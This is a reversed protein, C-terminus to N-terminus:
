KTCQVAKILRREGDSKIGIEFFYDNGIKLNDRRLIRPEGIVEVEPNDISRLKRENINFRDLVYVRVETFSGPGLNRYGQFTQCPTQEIEVYEPSRGQIIGISTAGAVAVSAILKRLNGM